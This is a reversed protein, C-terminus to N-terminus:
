PTVSGPFPMDVDGSIRKAGVTLIRAGKDDNIRKEKAEEFTAMDEAYPRGKSFKWEWILGLKLLREDLRFTDDDATFTTKNTGGGSPAIILNSQYWHKATAGSSLATKIHMQGGYIIWSGFVLDVNQVDLGLWTDLDYVPSLPSQNSSSWVKAKKPMRDYDTPLDFDETSGDGTYTAQAALKRWDHAAAIRTAVENALAKIEVHERVTSAMVASPVEMGIKTAVDQIVSLVTM